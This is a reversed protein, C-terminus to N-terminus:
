EKFINNKINDKQKFLKILIKKLPLVKLKPNRKNPIIRTVLVKNFKRSVKM